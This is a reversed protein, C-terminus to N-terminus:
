AVAGLMALLLHSMPSDEGSFELNEKEFKVRCGRDTLEKVIKLLDGLNRGLRDMSHVHVVANLKGLLEADSLLRQLDPRQTDKGSATDSYVRDLKLGDLQRAHNQGVSSVRVYGVHVAKDTNM